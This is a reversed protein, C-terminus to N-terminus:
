AAKALPSTRTQLRQMFNPHVRDLLHKFREWDAGTLITSELLSNLNAPDPAVADDAQANPANQAILQETFARLAAKAEVLESELRAQTHQAATLKRRKQWYAWLGWAALALAVCAAGYILRNRQTLAEIERSKRESQYRAEAMVMSRQREQSLVSDRMTQVMQQAKVAGAFDGAATLCDALEKYAIEAIQANQATDAWQTAVKSISVAEAARGQERRIRARLSMFQSLMLPDGLSQSQGVGTDIRMEAATYQQQEILVQSMWHLANLWDGPVEQQHARAINLAKEFYNQAKAYDKGRAAMKGLQGYVGGLLSYDSAQIGYQECRLLYTEHLANDQQDEYLAAINFCIVGLRRPEGLTESLKLAELYATLAVDSQGIQRSYGGQASLIRVISPLHGSQRALTNLTDLVTKCGGWDSSVTLRHRFVPMLANFRGTDTTARQYNQYATVEPSIYGQARVLTVVTFCLLLGLMRQSIYRCPFRTHPILM